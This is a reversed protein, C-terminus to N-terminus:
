IGERWSEGESFPAHGSGMHDEILQEIVFPDAPKTLFHDIGVEEALSRTAADGFATVVILLPRHPLEQVIQEAVLLGNLKPLGIDIIVVDPPNFVAARVGKVGDTATAVDFGCGIHLFRALTDAVDLNDEVILVKTTRVSTAAAQM